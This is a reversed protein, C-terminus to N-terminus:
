QYKLTDMLDVLLSLLFQLILDLLSQGVYEVMVSHVTNRISIRAFQYEWIAQFQKRKIKLRQQFLLDEKGIDRRIVFDIILVVEAVMSDVILGLSQERLHMWHM